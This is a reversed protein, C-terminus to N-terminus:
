SGATPISPRISDRCRTACTVSCRTTPSGGSRRRVRGGASTTPSAAASQAGPDRLDAASEGAAGRDVAAVAADAGSELGSRAARAAIIDDLRGAIVDYHRLVTAISGWQSVQSNFGYGAIGGDYLEPYSELMWKTHHGGNSGGMM